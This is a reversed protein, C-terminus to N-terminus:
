WGLQKVYWIPIFLVAALMMIVLISFRESWGHFKGYEYTTILISAFPTLVLGGKLIRVTADMNWLNWHRTHPWALIGKVIPVIFASILFVFLFAILYYSLRVLFARM